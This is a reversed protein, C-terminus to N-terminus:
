ADQVGPTTKIAPANTRAHTLGGREVDSLRERLTAVITRVRHETLEPLRLFRQIETRTLGEVFKLSVIVADESPLTALAQTLQEDRERARLAAEPDLTTAPPDVVPEDDTGELPVAPRSRAAMSLLESRQRLSLVDDIRELAQFVRDLTIEEKMEVHLLAAAETPRRGEWYFLEFLRQHFRDLERISAFMRKRGARSRVWDVAARRIIVVLWGTLSGLSPDRRRLAACHNAALRECARVYVEMAEDRDVIGAREILALLVPTYADIFTRWGKEPNEALLLRLEEEGVPEGGSASSSARPTRWRV